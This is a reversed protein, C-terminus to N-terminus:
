DHYKRIVATVIGGIRLDTQPRILPYRPNAAELVIQRGQKRYYKMTWEGDVEAVVIDGNGPERGREVIVLDGERIGEDIMSDGSVRLLFSADPKTILYDDMSIVDLLSQEEPSPFGAQISGVLPIASPRQSFALHGKGDKELIGADILKNIWFNVVSKSRVGLLDIMEAYSPMRRNDRLFAAITSRVTHITRKENM